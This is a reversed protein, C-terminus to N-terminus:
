VALLVQYLYSVIKQAVKTTRWLVMAMVITMLFDYKCNSTPIVTYVIVCLWTFKRVMGMWFVGIENFKIKGLYKKMGYVFVGLNIVAFAWM